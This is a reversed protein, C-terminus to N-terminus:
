LIYLFLSPQYYIKEIYFGLCINICWKRNLSRFPLQYGLPALVCGNDWEQHWGRVPAGLPTVVTELNLRCLDGVVCVIPYKYPGRIFLKCLDPISEWIKIGLKIYVEVLPSPFLFVNLDHTTKAATVFHSNIQDRNIVFVTPFTSHNWKEVCLFMFFVSCQKHSLSWGPMAIQKDRLDFLIYKSFWNFLYIGSFM